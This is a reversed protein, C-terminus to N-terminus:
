RKRTKNKNGTPKSKAVVPEELKPEDSEVIWGTVTKKVADRIEQPTWTEDVPLLLCAVSDPALKAVSKKRCGYNVQVQLNFKIGRGEQATTYGQMDLRYDIDGYVKTGNDGFAGTLSSDPISDIFDKIHDTPSGRAM